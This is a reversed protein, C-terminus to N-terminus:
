KEVDIEAFILAKMSRARKPKAIEGCFVRLPRSRSAFSRFWRTVMTRTGRYFKLLTKLRTLTRDSAGRPWGCCCVGESPVVADSGYILPTNASPMM